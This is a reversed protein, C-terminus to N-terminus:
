NGPLVFHICGRPTSCCRKHWRSNQVNSENYDNLFAGVAFPIFPAILFVVAIYAVPDRLFAMVKVSQPMCRIYQYKCFAEAQKETAVLIKQYALIDTPFLIQETCRISNNFCSTPIHWLLDHIKHLARERLQM